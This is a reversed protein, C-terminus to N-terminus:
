RSTRGFETQEQQEDAELEGNDYAQEVENILQGAGMLLVGAREASERSDRNYTLSLEADGVMITTRTRGDNLVELEAAAQVNLTQGDVDEIIQGHDIEHLDVERADVSVETLVIDEPREATV